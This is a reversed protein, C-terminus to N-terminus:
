TRWVVFNLSTTHQQGFHSRPSAISVVEDHGSSNFLLIILHSLTLTAHIINQNNEDGRLLNRFTEGSTKPSAGGLLRAVQLKQMVMQIWGLCLRVDM